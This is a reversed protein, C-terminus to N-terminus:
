LPVEVDLARREDRARLRYVVTVDLREHTANVEVGEVEVVDGLWRELAELVAVQLLRAAERANPEFLLQRLGCGFEPRHVREGPSTLLVQRILQDVHAGYDHERALRGGGADM